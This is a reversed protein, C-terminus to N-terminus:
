GQKEIKRSYIEIKSKSKIAWDEMEDLLKLFRKDNLPIDEVENKTLLRAMTRIDAAVDFLRMAFQDLKESNYLEITM